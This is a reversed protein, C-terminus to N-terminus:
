DEVIIWLSIALYLSCSPRFHVSGFNPSCCSAKLKPLSVSTADNGDVRWQTITATWTTAFLIIQM